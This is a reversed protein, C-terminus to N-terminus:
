SFWLQSVAMDKIKVNVSNFWDEIKHPYPGDQCNNMSVSTGVLPFGFAIDINSKKLIWGQNKGLETCELSYSIYSTVKNSYIHKGTKNRIKIFILSEIGISPANVVIYEPENTPPKTMVQTNIDNISWFKSPDVLFYVKSAKVSTGSKSNDNSLISARSDRNKNNSTFINSISLCLDMNILLTLLIAVNIANNFIRIKIYKVKM